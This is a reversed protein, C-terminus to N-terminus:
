PMIMAAGAGMVVRCAIVAGASGAMSAVIAAGGFLVMGALLINRRGFRDGLAGFPLVLAALALTYGDAIWTLASAAASLDVALDSLALNLSSVSAVVLVLALCMSFLVGRRQQPTLSVVQEM